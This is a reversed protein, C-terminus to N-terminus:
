RFTFIQFLSYNNKKGGTTQMVMDEAYKVIAQVTEYQPSGSEVKSLALSSSRTFLDILTESMARFLESDIIKFVILCLYNISQFFNVYKGSWYM